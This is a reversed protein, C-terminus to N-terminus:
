SRALPVIYPNLAARVMAGTQTDGLGERRSVTYIGFLMLMADDDSLNIACGMRAADSRLGRVCARMIQRDEADFTVWAKKRAM